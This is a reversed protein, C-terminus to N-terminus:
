YHFLQTAFKIHSSMTLISLLFTFLNRIKSPDWITPDNLLENCVVPRISNGGDATAVAAVEGKINSSSSAALSTAASQGDLQTTLYVSLALLLAAVFIIGTLIKGPSFTVNSNSRKRSSTDIRRITTSLPAPSMASLLDGSRNLYQM